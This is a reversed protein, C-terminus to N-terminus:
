YCIKDLINNELLVLKKGYIKIGSDPIIKELKIDIWNDLDIKFGPIANKNFNNPAFGYGFLNKNIGLLSVPVDKLICLDSNTLSISKIKNEFDECLM